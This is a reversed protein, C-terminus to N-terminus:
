ALTTACSGCRGGVVGAGASHRPQMASGCVPCDASDGASLEGWLASIADDLTRAMTATGQVAAPEDLEAPEITPSAPDLVPVDFVAGSTQTEAPAEPEPVQPPAVVQSFLTPQRRDRERGRGSQRRRTLVTSM